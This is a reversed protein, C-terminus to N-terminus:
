DFSSIREREIFYNIMFNNNMEREREREEIQLLSMKM